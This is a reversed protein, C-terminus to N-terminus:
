FSLRRHQAVPMGQRVKRLKELDILATAVGPEDDLQALVEGWPDLIMSHGWTQRKADHWGCQDAALVYCQTEIARARLLIEWHAKGTRHTFAAPVSILEAGQEVLQRYLEPFRIDYCISLGLKGVPTDLVVVDDGPEFRESERYSGQSDGVDVDFLHIKDYRAVQEGRDDFVLCASRVRDKGGSPLAMPIAGAVLWIGFERCWSQLKPLWLEPHEVLSAYRSGKMSLCMEPLVVLRAGQEAGSRLQVEIAALNQQPDDLSNLQVVSVLM